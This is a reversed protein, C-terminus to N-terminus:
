NGKLLNELVNVVPCERCVQPSANDHWVCKRCALSVASKLRPWTPANGTHVLADYRVKEEPEDPLAVARQKALTLAPATDKPLQAAQAQLADTLKKAASIAAKYPVRNHYLRKALEVRAAPDPIGLLALAVQPNTYWGLRYLKQIEADLKLLILRNYVYQQGNAGKGIANGIEVMSMNFEVQLTQFAAAEDLPHMDARNLNEVLAELLRTRDGTGNLNPRVDARITEWGLQRAALTRREGAILTFTGDANEEVLISQIQGHIHMSQALEDLAAPDFATRPQRPNPAILTLPIDM